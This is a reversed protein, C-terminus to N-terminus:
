SRILDLAAMLMEQTARSAALNAEYSRSTEVMDTMERFISINPLEVYGDPGAYPHSPDYKRIPQSGDTQIKTVEVESFVPEGDGMVTNLESEFGELKKVEFVAEKRRYPGDPGTTQQNALNESIVRLRLRQAKMGSASIDLAAFDNM